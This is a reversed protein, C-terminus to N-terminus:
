RTSRGQYVATRLGGEPRQHGAGCPSPHPARLVQTPGQAGGAVVGEGGRSCAMGTIGAVSRVKAQVSRLM